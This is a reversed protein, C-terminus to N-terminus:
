WPAQDAQYGPEDLGTQLERNIIDHIFAVDDVVAFHAGERIHVQLRSNTFRGWGLAHHRSVYPDGKAAFCTIPIDWPPERVFEYNTAMQFEARVVPLMLRRLEPDSLLQETAQINFHRILEAFVDDPQAYAPLSIRFEALRLLDHMVREEFQGQDTIRDPPRAGSAFLHDPRVMTTHILRRATEYMTLAGLCHGFFAFPRDLLEEMEPVLQEVFEKIDAIPTETIRGLRGPPEIAIVEITPDIFQVWTRYVASGGGAFPFCFLRLRPAARPGVIILWSGAYGKPKIVIPHLPRSDGDATPDAAIPWGGASHEPQSVVAQPVADDDAGPGATVPWVGVSPEPQVPQTVADDDTGTVDPLIDDVLQEISPGQILKVTSVKIGLAAELRNVLTV